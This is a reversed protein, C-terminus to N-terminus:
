QVVADRSMDLHLETGTYPNAAIVEDNLEIGLGPTKPPIVYGDQWAFDASVFSM